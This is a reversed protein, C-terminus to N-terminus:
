PVDRPPHSHFERGEERSDEGPPVALGEARLHPGREIALADAFILEAVLIKAGFATLDIRREAELPAPHDVVAVGFGGRNRWGPMAPDVVGDIHRRGVLFIDCAGPLLRMPWVRGARGGGLARGARRQRM